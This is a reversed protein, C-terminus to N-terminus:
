LGEPLRGLDFWFTHLSEVFASLRDLSGPKVIYGNAGARYCRNVDEPAQSGSLVIVPLHSLKPDAKVALLVDFGTVKPLNLDLLVM